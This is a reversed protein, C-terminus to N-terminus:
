NRWDIVVDLAGFIRYTPRGPKDNRHKWFFWGYKERGEFDEVTICDRNKLDYGPNEEIFRIIDSRRIKDDRKIRYNGSPQKALPLLGKRIWKRVTKSTAGVLTAVENVAYFEKPTRTEM